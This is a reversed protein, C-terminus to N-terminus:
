RCSQRHLQHNKSRNIWKNNSEKPIDYILINLKYTILDLATQGGGKVSPKSNYDRTDYSIATVTTVVMLNGNVYYYNEIDADEIDALWGRVYNDGSDTIKSLTKEKIKGLAKKAKNESKFIYFSMNDFKTPETGKNTYKKCAYGAMKADSENLRVGVIREVDSRYYVIPAGFKNHPQNHYDDFEGNAIRENFEKTDNAFRIGGIGLMLLLFILIGTLVHVRKIKFKEKNEMFVM